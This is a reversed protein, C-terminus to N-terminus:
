SPYSLDEPLFGDLWPALFVTDFRNLELDVYFITFYINELSHLM